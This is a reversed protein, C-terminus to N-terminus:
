ESGPEYKFSIQLKTRFTVAGSQDIQIDQEVVEAIRLDRITQSATRVAERAADEWSTSSTGILDIVKYVSM